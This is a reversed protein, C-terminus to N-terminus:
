FLPVNLSELNIHSYGNFLKNRKMLSFKLYEVIAIAILM